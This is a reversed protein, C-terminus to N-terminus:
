VIYRSVDYLADRAVGSWHRDVKFEDWLKAQFNSPDRLYLGLLQYAQTIGRAAFMPARQPGIGPVAIVPKDGLPSNMFATNFCYFHTKLSMYKSVMECLANYAFGAYDFRVKFEDWLRAQFNLPNQLFIELLQSAKTIKKWAMNKAAAKGIGPLATM